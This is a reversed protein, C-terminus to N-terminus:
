TVVADDRMIATDDNARPLGVRRDSRHESGDRTQKGLVEVCVEKGGAQKQQEQQNRLAILVRQITPLVWEVKKAVWLLGACVV